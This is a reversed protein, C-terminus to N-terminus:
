KAPRAGIRDSTPRKKRRGRVRYARSGSPKEATDQIGSPQPTKLEGAPRDLVDGEVAENVDADYKTSPVAVVEPDHATSVTTRRRRQFAQGTSVKKDRPGDGIKGHDVVSLSPSIRWVQEPWLGAAANGVEEPDGGELENKITVTMWATLVILVCLVLMAVAVAIGDVSKARLGNLLAVSFSARPLHNETHRANLPALSAASEPMPTLQLREGLSHYARLPITNPPLLNVNSAVSSM